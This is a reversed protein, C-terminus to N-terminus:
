RNRYDTGAASASEPIPRLSLRSPMSRPTQKRCSWGQRSRRRRTLARTGSTWDWADAHRDCSVREDTVVATASTGTLKL